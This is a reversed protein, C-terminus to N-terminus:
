CESYDSAFIGNLAYLSDVSITLQNDLQMWQKNEKEFVATIIGNARTVGHDEYLVGVKVKQEFLEAVQKYFNGKLPLTERSDM